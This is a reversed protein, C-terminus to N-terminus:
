NFPLFEEKTYDIKNESFGHKWNYEIVKWELRKWYDKIESYRQQSKEYVEMNDTIELVSGYYNPLSNM